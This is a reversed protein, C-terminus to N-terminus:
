DGEGKHLTLVRAVVSTSVPDFSQPYCGRPSSTPSSLLRQSMSYVLTGLPIASVFFHLDIAVHKIHQHQILTTSPYVASGNDYYVLTVQSLPSHLEM